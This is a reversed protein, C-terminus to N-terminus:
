YRLVEENFICKGSPCWGMLAPEFWLCRRRGALVRFPVAGLQERFCLRLFWLFPAGKGILLWWHLFLIFPLWFTKIVWIETAEPFFFFFLFPMEKGSLLLENLSNVRRKGRVRWRDAKGGIKDRFESWPNRWAPAEGRMWQLGSAQELAASIGAGFIIKKM